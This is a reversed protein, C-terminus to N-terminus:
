SFEQRNGRSTMTKTKIPAFTETNPDLAHFSSQYDVLSSDVSCAILLKEVYKVDITIFFLLSISYLLIYVHVLPLISM